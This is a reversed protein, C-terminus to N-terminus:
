GTSAHYYVDTYFVTIAAGPPINVATGTETATVTIQEGAAFRTNAATTSVTPFAVANANVDTVATNLTAAVNGNVNVTLVFHNSNDDPAHNASSYFSAGIVEGKFPMVPGELGGTGSIQATAVLELARGQQTYSM